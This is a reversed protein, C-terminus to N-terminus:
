AVVSSGDNTPSITILDENGRRDVWVLVNYESELEGGAVYALSGNESPYYYAEKCGGMLVDEVLPISPGTLELRELDFPAALLTSAKAFVIHGTTLYHPATGGEILIRQEGTRLSQVIISPNGCSGDLAVFLLADGGPLIQPYSHSFHGKESDIVTLAQPTDGEVSTRQIVHTTNDVYVIGADPGWSAGRMVRPIDALPLPPGGLLSIKKM